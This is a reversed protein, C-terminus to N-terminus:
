FWHIKTKNLLLDQPLGTCGRRKGLKETNTKGLRFQAALGTASTRNRKLFMLYFGARLECMYEWDQPGQMSTASVINSTKHGNIIRDAIQHGNMVYLGCHPAQLPPIVAGPLVRHNHSLGSVHRQRIM